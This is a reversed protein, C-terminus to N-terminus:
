AEPIEGTNESRNFIQIPPTPMEESVEPPIKRWPSGKQDQQGFGNCLLATKANNM